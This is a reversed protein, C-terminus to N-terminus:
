TSAQCSFVPVVSIVPWRKRSPHNCRPFSLCKCATHGDDAIKTIFWILIFIGNNFRGAEQDSFLRSTDNEDRLM